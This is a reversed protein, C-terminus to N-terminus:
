RGRFYQQSRSLMIHPEDAIQHDNGTWQNGHIDNILSRTLVHLWTFLLWPIDWGSLPIMQL